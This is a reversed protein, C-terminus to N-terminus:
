TSSIWRCISGLLVPKRFTGPVMNRSASPAIFAGMTETTCFSCTGGLPLLAGGKRYQTPDTTHRGEADIIWGAPIEEGRAVTLEAPNGDQLMERYRAIGEAASGQALAGTAAIALSAGVLVAHITSRKM